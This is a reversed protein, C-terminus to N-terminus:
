KVVDVCVSVTETTEVSAVITLRFFSFFHYVYSSPLLLDGKECRILHPSKLKRLPLGENKTKQKVQPSHTLPEFELIREKCM